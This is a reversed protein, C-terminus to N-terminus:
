QEKIIENIKEYTDLRPHMTGSAYGKLQHAQVKVQKTLKTVGHKQLYETLQQQFDKTIM